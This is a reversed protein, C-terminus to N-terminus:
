RGSLLLTQTFIQVLDKVECGFKKYGLSPQMSLCIREITAGETPTGM